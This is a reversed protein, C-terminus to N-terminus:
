TVMWANQVHEITHSSGQWVIAIADFRYTLQPSGFRSIWGQAVHAIERRKKWTIAECPHGYGKGGRAKVEVFAITNGLAAIIDIEKRNIRYNRAIIRFGHRTLFDAAIAESIAGLSHAMQARDCFATPRFMARAAMIKRRVSPGHGLAIEATSTVVHGGELSRGADEQQSGQEWPDPTHVAPRTRAV